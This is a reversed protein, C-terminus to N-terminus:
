VITDNHGYKAANHLPTNGSTSNQVNPNCGEDTILYRVINVDGWWCAIHLLCDGDKSLPIDEATEGKKSPINTSCRSELLLKIIDM